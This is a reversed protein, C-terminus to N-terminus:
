RSSIARSLPPGGRGFTLGFLLGLPMSCAVSGSGGPPEPPSRRRRPLVREFNDISSSRLTLSVAGGGPERKL